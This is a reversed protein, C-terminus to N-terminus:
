EAAAQGTREEVWLPTWECKGRKSDLLLFAQQPDEYDAGISQAYANYGILSGNVIARGYDKLQHWHGICHLASPMTRDWAPVRKLLPIGLGGVGGQYRVEDGHHFHVIQGYIEVYQHNSPTIEFRVRPENRFEEALWHYLLWDFSNSYGTSVRRRETTRGHNGHSCPVTISELELVQLLSFIGDRILPLLYRVAETPSLLNGEVLEPHIYGSYLDGGLWLVLDRIAIRGSARHHEIQWMIAAFFRRIRREAIELNYENRNAVAAPDVPEEVHWDSALVLATMERMGSNRERALISPPPMASKSDLFAQRANAEQLRRVLDDITARLKATEDRKERAQVPDYPEVPAAPVRSFPSTDPEQEEFRESAPAACGIPQPSPPAPTRYTAREADPPADIAVARAPAPGTRMEALRMRTGATTFTRGFRRSLAAAIERWRYGADLLRKGERLEPEGWQWSRGSM